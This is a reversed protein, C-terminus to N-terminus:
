TLGEIELTCMSASFYQIDMTFDRYFGFVNLSQYNSDDTGVWMCPTARLDALVGYVRDFDTNLVWLKTNVRSSFSRKVFTTVGFEDTNKRSYDTIGLTTGYQAGGINAANGFSVNGIAVVTLPAASVKIDMSANVYSPLGSLVLTNVQTFPEFFYLYWDTIVARDLTIDGSDYVTPGAIGDKIIVRAKTGTLNVLALSDCNGTAVKFEIDGLDESATSVQPDFAAWKNSPGFVSWQAPSIDPQNGTTSTTATYIYNGYVVKTGTTYATVASYTAYLETTSSYQIMGAVMTTPKIVKM